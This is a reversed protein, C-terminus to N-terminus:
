ALIGQLAVLDYSPTSLPEGEHGHRMPVFRVDYLIHRSRLDSTYGAALESTEICTYARWDGSRYGSYDQYHRVLWSDQPESDFEAETVPRIIQLVGGQRVQAVMPQVDSSEASCTMYVLSYQSRETAEAGRADGNILSVNRVGARELADRGFDAYQTNVEYGTISADPGLLASWCAAHYGSGIGVELITDHAGRAAELMLAVLSPPTATSAGDFPVTANLFALHIYEPRVFVHRAVGAVATSVDEAIGVRSLVHHLALQRGATDLARYQDAWREFAAPTGNRLRILNSPVLLTAASVDLHKVRWDLEAESFLPFYEYYDPRLHTKITVESIVVCRWLAVFLVAFETTLEDARSLPGALM